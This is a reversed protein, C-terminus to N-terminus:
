RIQKGEGEPVEETDPRIKSVMINGEVVVNDYLNFAESQVGSIVVFEPKCVVQLHGETGERIIGTIKGKWSIRNTNRKPM